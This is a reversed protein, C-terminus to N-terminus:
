HMGQVIVISDNFSDFIGELIGVGIVVLLLMLLVWFITAIFSLILVFKSTKPRTHRFLIWEFFGLPPFLAIFGLILYGLIGERKRQEQLEKGCVNCYNERSDLEAGCHPCHVLM